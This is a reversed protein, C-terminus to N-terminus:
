LGFIFASDGCYTQPTAMFRIWVSDVLRAGQWEGLMVMYLSLTLQIM